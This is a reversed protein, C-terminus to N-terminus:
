SSRYKQLICILGFVGFISLGSASIFFVHTLSLYGTYAYLSFLVGSSLLGLLGLMAQFKLMGLGNSIASTTIYLIHALFSCNIAFITWIDPIPANPGLWITILKPSLSSLATLASSLLLIPLFQKQILRRIQNEDNEGKAKALRTWFPICLAMAVMLIPSFLRFIVDYLALDRADLFAAIMLRPIFIQASLIQQLAFLSLGLLLMDKGIISSPIRIPSVLSLISVRNMVIVICHAILSSACFSLFLSELSLSSTLLLGTSIIFLIAASASQSYSLLESRGLGSAAHLTHGVVVSALFISLGVLYISINNHIERVYTEGGAQPWYIQSLLLVLFLVVMSLGVLALGTWTYRSLDRSGSVAFSRSIATKIAANQGFDLLALQFCAAVLFSYVAYQEVSITRFIMSVTLLSVPYVSAKALIARSVEGRITNM